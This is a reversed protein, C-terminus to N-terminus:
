KFLWPSFYGLNRFASYQTRSVHTTPPTLIPVQLERVEGKLTSRQPHVPGISM